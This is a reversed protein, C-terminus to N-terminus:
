QVTSRFLGRVQGRLEQAELVPVRQKSDPSLIPSLACCGCPEVEDGTSEVRWLRM